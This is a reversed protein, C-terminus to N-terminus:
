IGNCKRWEKRLTPEIIEQMKLIKDLLEDRKKINDDSLMEVEVYELIMSYTEDLTGYISKLDAVSIKM